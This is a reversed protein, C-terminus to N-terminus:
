RILDSQFQNGFPGASHLGKSLQWPECIVIILHKSAADGQHSAAGTNHDYAEPGSEITSATQETRNQKEKSQKLESIFLAQQINQYATTSLQNAITFLIQAVGGFQERSM